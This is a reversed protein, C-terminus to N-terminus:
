NQQTPQAAPPPVRRQSWSRLANLTEDTMPRTRVFTQRQARPAAAGAPPTAADPAPVAPAAGAPPMVSSDPPAGLSPPPVPPAGPELPPGSGPVTPPANSPIAPPAPPTAPATGNKKSQKAVAEQVARDVLNFLFALRAQVDLDEVSVALVLSRDIMALSALWEDRAYLMRACRYYRESALLLEGAAEYAEGAAGTASPIERYLKARRLWYAEADLRRAGEGPRGELILIRGEIRAIQARTAVDLDHGLRERALALEGRALALDYQDCALEAKLLHVAAKTRDPDLCPSEPEEDPCGRCTKDEKKKKRKHAKWWSEDEYCASSCEIPCEDYSAHVVGCGLPCKEGDCLGRKEDCPATREAMQVAMVADAVAGQSRAIKAELLWAASQSQGARRLEARAERLCDRAENDFGVAALVAAVNYANHGIELPDDIAWSRKLALTYYAIAERDSGEAYAAQGDKAARAIYPDPKYTPKSSKCGVIALLAVVCALWVATPRSRRPAEM